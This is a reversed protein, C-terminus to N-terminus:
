VKPYTAKVGDIILKMDAQSQGGKWLADLQDGIPPYTQQRKDAYTMASEAQTKWWGAVVEDEEYGVEIDDPDYNQEASDRLSKIAGSDNAGEGNLSEIIKGTSISKSYYM